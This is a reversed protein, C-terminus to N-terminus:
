QVQFGSHMLRFSAQCARSMWMCTKHIYTCICKRAYIDKFEQITRGEAKEGPINEWRGAKMREEARIQRDLKKQKGRTRQKRQQRGKKRKNNTEGFIVGLAAWSMRFGIYYLYWELKLICQKLRRFYTLIPVKSVRTLISFLDLSLSIAAWPSLELHVGVNKKTHYLVLVLQFLYKRLESRFRICDFAISWLQALYVLLEVARVYKLIFRIVCDFRGSRLVGQICTYICM